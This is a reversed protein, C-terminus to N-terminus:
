PNLKSTVDKKSFSTDRSFTGDGQDILVEYRSFLSKYGIENVIDEQNKGFVSFKDLIEAREAQRGVFPEEKKVAIDTLQIVPKIDDGKVKLKYNLIVEKKNEDSPLIDVMKNKKKQIDM